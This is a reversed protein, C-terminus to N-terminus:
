ALRGTEDDKEKYRTHAWKLQQRRRRWAIGDLSEHYGVTEGSWRPNGSGASGMAQGAIYRM